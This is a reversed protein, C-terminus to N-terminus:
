RRAVAQASGKAQKPEVTADARTVSGGIPKLPILGEGEDDIRLQWEIGYMEFARPAGSARTTYIRTFPRFRPVSFRWRTPIEQFRM